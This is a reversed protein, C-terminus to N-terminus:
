NIPPVNINDIPRDARKGEKPKSPAEATPKIEEKKAVAEKAKDTKKDTSKINEEEKKATEKALAEQQQKQVAANISDQSAVSSKRIQDAVDVSVAGASFSDIATTDYAPETYTQSTEESTQKKSCAITLSLAVIFFVVKKMINFNM